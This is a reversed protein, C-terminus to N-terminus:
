NLITDFCLAFSSFIFLTVLVKELEQTKAVDLENPGSLSIPETIGLRQGGNNWNSSGLNSM